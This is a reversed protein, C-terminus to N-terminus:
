ANAARSRQGGPASAQRPREVGRGTTIALAV